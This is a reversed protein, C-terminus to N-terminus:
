AVSFEGTEPDMTHLEGTSIDHCAGHLTIKGREVQTKVCPFTLLNDISNRIGAEKM